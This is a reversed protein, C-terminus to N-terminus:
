ENWKSVLEVEHLYFGKKVGEIEIYVIDARVMWDFYTSIIVGVKGVDNDRLYHFASIETIIVLDGIDFKDM